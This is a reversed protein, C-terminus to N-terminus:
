PAVAPTTMIRKSAITFGTLETDDDRFFIGDDRDRRIAAVHLGFEVYDPVFQERRKVIM